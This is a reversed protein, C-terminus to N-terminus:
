CPALAFPLKRLFGSANFLLGFYINHNQFIEALFTTPL